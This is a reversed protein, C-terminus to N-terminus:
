SPVRLMFVYISAGGDSEVYDPQCVDTHRKTVGELPELRGNVCEESRVDGEGEAPTQEHELGDSKECIGQLAEWPGERFGVGDM